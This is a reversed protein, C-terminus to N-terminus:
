VALTRCCGQQADGGGNRDPQIAYTETKLDPAEALWCQGGGRTFSHEGIPQTWQPLSTHEKRDM